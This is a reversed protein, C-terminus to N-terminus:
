ANTSNLNFLDVGEVLLLQLLQFRNVTQDEEELPDCVIVRGGAADDHVGPSVFHKEGLLHFM